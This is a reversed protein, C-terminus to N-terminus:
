PHVRMCLPWIYEMHHVITAPNLSQIKHVEALKGRKVLLDDYISKLEGTADQHEIAQIRAM